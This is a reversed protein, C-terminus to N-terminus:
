NSVQQVAQHLCAQQNIVQFRQKFVNSSFSAQFRQDFVNSSFTAQFRQKFVNSSFTAQVRQKFVKACRTNTSIRQSKCTEVCVGVSAATTNNENNEPPM